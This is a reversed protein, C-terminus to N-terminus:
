RTNIEPFTQLMDELASVAMKDVTVWAGKRKLFAVIKFLNESLSRQTEDFRGTWLIRSSAVDVLHVDFAASAPSDVSYGTGIREKFRYVYGAMVADAGLTRGTEVIQDRDSLRDEDRSLMESWVGQAQASPILEVGKRSEMLSILSQTLFDEANDIVEGTMFVNGCLPCRLSVNEGYIGSLNKFPLILLKGSTLPALAPEPVTVHSRCASLFILFIFFLKLWVANFSKVKEKNLKITHM